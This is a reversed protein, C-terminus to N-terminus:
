ASRKNKPNMAAVDLVKPQQAAHPHETGAYVKLKRFQIRGMPGKPLMREVAMRVVRDPHAGELIQAATRSKIGGPYGTHWYYTKDQVKKGTMRVKDANIVVVHDGCDLNPSYMAKHKGRLRDAVIVAMRGLVVDEADVLWWKREIDAPKASYTKMSYTKLYQWWCFFRVGRRGARGDEAGCYAVPKRLTLGPRRGSWHPRVHKALQITNWASPTAM